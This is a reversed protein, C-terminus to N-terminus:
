RVAHLYTPEAMPEVLEFRRGHLLSPVRGRAVAVQAPDVDAFIVGPETGGEAIIKGWPDVVRSHGYTDRGHEHRGGQAAALEVGFMHIKDYPAVVDGKRDILFSPNAAKEPSAKIALSGIHIYLSLKRAVERLTALTTDHEDSVIKTFLRERKNELVNTMEPTLVYDAGGRKAEDIGTLVAALNPQPELGSRMQILAVKFTSADARSM